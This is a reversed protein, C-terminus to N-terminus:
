TDTSFDYGMDYSTYNVRTIGVAVHHGTSGSKMGWYPGNRSYGLDTNEVSNAHDYVWLVVTGEGDEGTMTEWSFADVGPAIVLYNADTYDEPNVQPAGTVPTTTGILWFGLDASNLDNTISEAYSTSALCLAFIFSIFKKM